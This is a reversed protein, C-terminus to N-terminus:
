MNCNGSRREKAQDRMERNGKLLGDRTRPRRKSIVIERKRGLIHEIKSEKDGERETEKKRRTEKKPKYM